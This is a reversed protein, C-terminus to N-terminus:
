KFSTEALCLAHAEKWAGHGGCQFTHDNKNGSKPGNWSFVNPHGNTNCGGGILVSGKPCTARAWDYGWNNVLTVPLDLEPTCIAWTRKKGGHGGCIWGNKELVSDEVRWPKKYNQCGGGIAKTKRPCGKRFWDGGKQSVIQLKIEKDPVCMVWVKKRGGHGGCKWARPNKNDPANYEMLHPPQTNDCGGGIVSHKPPCKVSHWDGGTSEIKKINYKVRKGSTNKCKPCAPCKHEGAFTMSTTTTAMNVSITASTSESEAASATTSLANFNSAEVTAEAAKHAFFHLPSATPNAVELIHEKADPEATTRVVPVTATGADDEDREDDLEEADKQGEPADQSAIENQNEVEAGAKRQEQKNKATQQEEEAAGNGAEAEMSKAALKMENESAEARLKSALDALGDGFPKRSASSMRMDQSRDFQILSASVSSDVSQVEKEMQLAEAEDDDHDLDLMAYGKGEEVVNRLCIAYVKKWPGHGGCTYTNVASTKPSHRQIKHPGGNVDCGGGILAYSDPCSTKAWDKGWGPMTTTPLDPEPSCIAFVTKKGGHGGCAWGNTGRPASDEYRWRGHQVDCGGSLIKPAERPCQVEHWDGGTSKVVTLGPMDEDRVCVAYVKKKGGNGGCKWARGDETPASVQYVWPSTYADCGGGVISYGSPCSLTHWDGGAEAFRKIRYKRNQPSSELTALLSTLKAAAIKFALKPLLKQDEVAAVAIVSPVVMAALATTDKMAIMETASM